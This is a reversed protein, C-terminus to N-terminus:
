WNLANVERGLRGRLHNEGLFIANSSNAATLYFRPLDEFHGTSRNMVNVSEMIRGDFLFTVRFRANTDNTRRTYRVRCTFYVEKSLGSGSTYPGWFLPFGSMPPFYDLIILHIIIIRSYTILARAMQPNDESQCVNSLLYLRVQRLLGVLITLHFQNRRIFFWLGSNSSRSPPSHLWSFCCAIGLTINVAAFGM